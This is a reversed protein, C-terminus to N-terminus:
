MLLYYMSLCVAEFDGEWRNWLLHLFGQLTFAFVATIKSFYDRFCFLLKPATAPNKNLDTFQLQRGALWKERNKVVRNFIDRYVLGRSLYWSYSRTFESSPSIVDFSFPPPSFRQNCFRKCPPRTWVPRFENQYLVPSSSEKVPAIDVRYIVHRHLLFQLEWTINKNNWFITRLKRYSKM